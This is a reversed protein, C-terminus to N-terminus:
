INKLASVGPTHSLCVGQTSTFLFSKNPIIKTHCHVSLHFSRGSVSSIDQLPWFIQKNQVTTHSLFFSLLATSTHCFNPQLTHSIKCTLIIESDAYRRSQSKLNTTCSLCQTILEKVREMSLCLRRM